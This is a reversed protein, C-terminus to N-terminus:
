QRHSYCDCGFSDRPDMRDSITYRNSVNRYESGNWHTQFNEIGVIWEILTTM